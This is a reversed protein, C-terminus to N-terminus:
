YAESAATHNIRIIKKYYSEHSFFLNSEEGSKLPYVEAELEINMDVQSM